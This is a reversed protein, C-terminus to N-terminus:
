VGSRPPLATPPRGTDHAPRGGPLSAPERPGHAPRRTRPTRSLGDAPPQRRCDTLRGGPERHGRPIGPDPRSPGERRRAGATREPRDARHRRAPDRGDPPRHPHPAPRDRQGPLGARHGVARGPLRAPLEARPLRHLRRPEACAGQGRHRRPQRQLRQRHRQPPSTRARPTATWAAPSASSSWPCSPPSWLPRCGRRPRRGQPPSTTDSRPGVGGQGHPSRRGCGKGKTSRATSTM